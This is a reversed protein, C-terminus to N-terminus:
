LVLEYGSKLHLKASNYTMRPRMMFLIQPHLAVFRIEQRHGDLKRIFENPNSPVTLVLADGFESDHVFSFSNPDRYIFEDALEGGVDYFEHNLYSALAAAVNGGRYFTVAMAMLDRDLPHDVARVNEPSVGFIDAVKTLDSSSSVRMSRERVFENERVRPVRDAVNV